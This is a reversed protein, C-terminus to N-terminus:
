GNAEVIPIPLPWEDKGVLLTKTNQSGHSPVLTLKQAARAAFARLTNRDAVPDRTMVINKASTGLIEILAATDTEKAAAILAHAAADASLFAKGDPTAGKAPLELLFSGAVAVVFVAFRHM